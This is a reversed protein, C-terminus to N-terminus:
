CINHKVGDNRFGNEDLIATLNDAGLESASAAVKGFLAKMANVMAWYFM